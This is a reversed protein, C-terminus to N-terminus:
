GLYIDGAIVDTLCQFEQQTKKTLTTIAEARQRLLIGAETLTTHRKGRNLLQVGLEEELDAIQRSLTPQTICLIDAARSINETQAVTLFYNLVRFEMTM